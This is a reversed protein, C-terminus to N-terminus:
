PLLVEIFEGANAAASLAIGAFKGTTQTIARGQNDTELSAGVAVAAGAEVFATGKLRVALGGRNPYPYPLAAGDHDFDEMNVGIVQAGAAPVDLGSTTLVVFRRNLYTTNAKAPFTRSFINQGEYYGAM